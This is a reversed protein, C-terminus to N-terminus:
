FLCFDKARELFINKNEVWEDYGIKGEDTLYDIYQNLKQLLEQDQVKVFFVSEEKKKCDISEQRPCELSYVAKVVLEDNSKDAVLKNGIYGRAIADIHGEKLAPIMSDEAVFYKTVPLNCDAPILMEREKLKNDYVSLTGDSTLFKKNKLVVTIGKKIKGEDINDILNAQSLFRYEGTTGRVAGVVYACTLDVHKNIAISDKTKMLLSQKFNAVKHTAEVVQVGDQDLLRRDERTIGGIAIDITPNTSPTLWINNWEKIGNFKFTMESEHISEIAQLLNVEYGQAENFGPSTPDRNASYSIPEFDSYFAVEYEKADISSFLSSLLSLLCLFKISLKM